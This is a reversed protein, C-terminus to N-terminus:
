PMKKHPLPLNKRIESESLQDFKLFGLNKPFTIGYAIYQFYNKNIYLWMYTFILGIFLYYNTFCFEELIALTPYM